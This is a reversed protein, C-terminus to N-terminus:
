DGQLPLEPDRLLSDCTGRQVDLTIRYKEASGCRQLRNPLNSTSGKQDTHSRLADDDASGSMDIVALGGQDLREGARV